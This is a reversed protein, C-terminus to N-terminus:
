KNLILVKDRDAKIIEYNSSAIKAEELRWRNTILLFKEKKAFLSELEDRQIKRVNKGSYYTAVPDFDGDTLLPDPYKRAERSLIAEDSIYANVDVFEYWSRQIQVFSLYVVFIVVGLMGLRGLYGLKGLVVKGSGLFGLILVPHLPILHWIHGKASFAFPTIFTVFFIGLARLFRNKLFVGALLGLIGPWFWRGIGNYLYDKALKINAVTDSEDGIGRAGIFLYHNLFGPDKSIQYAMWGGFVALSTLFLRMLERIKGKSLFVFIILPVITFPVMTKTLFLASLSIALPWFFKQTEVAKFALYITTLFLFTLISDLDGTRSRYLFWPASSLALAALLGILGGFFKRGLLYMLGLSGIGFVTSPLRTSFESIGLFGYFVAMVWFGFPPHDRFDAGNWSLNRFDGSEVINKAITGYWAEDWSVLSSQGLKYLFLPSLLLILIIALVDLWNKKM